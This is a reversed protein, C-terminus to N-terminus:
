PWEERSTGSPLFCRTVNGPLDVAARPPVHLPTLINDRLEIKSVDVSVPTRLVPDLYDDTVLNYRAQHGDGRLAFGIGGGVSLNGLLLCPPADAALAISSGGTRPLQFCNAAITM